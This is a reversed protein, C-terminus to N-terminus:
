ANRPRRLVTVTGLQVRKGNAVREVRVEHRMSPPANRVKADDLDLGTLFTYAAKPPRKYPQM